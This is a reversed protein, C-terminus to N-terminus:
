SIGSLTRVVRERAVFICRCSQQLLLESATSPKHTYTPPPHPYPAFSHAFHASPHYGCYLGWFSEDWM